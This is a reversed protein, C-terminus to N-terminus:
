TPPASLQTKVAMLDTRVGGKRNNEAYSVVDGKRREEQETLRPGWEAIDKGKRRPITRERICTARFQGVAERGPCERDPRPVDTAASELHCREIILGRM